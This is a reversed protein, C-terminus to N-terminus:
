LVSAIWFFPGYIFHDNLLGKGDLVVVFKMLNFLPSFFSLGYLDIREIKCAIM